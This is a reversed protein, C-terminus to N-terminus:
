SGSAVSDGMEHIKQVAARAHLLSELRIKFEEPRAACNDAYETGVTASAAQELLQVVTEVREPPWVEPHSFVHDVEDALARSFECVRIAQKSAIASQLADITTTIVREVAIASEKKRKPIRM